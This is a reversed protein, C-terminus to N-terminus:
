KFAPFEEARVLPRSAPADPESRQVASRLPAQLPRPSAEDTVYQQFSQIKEFRGATAASCQFDRWLKGIDRGLVWWMHPVSIAARALVIAKESFGSRRSNARAAKAAAMSVATTMSAVEARAPEAKSPAHRTVMM